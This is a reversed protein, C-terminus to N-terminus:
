AGSIISQMMLMLIPIYYFQELAGWKTYLKATDLLSAADIEQNSIYKWVTTELVSQSTTKNYFNISLIYYDDQTVPYITEVTQNPLHRLNLAKVMQNLQGVAVPAQVLVADGIPKVNNVITNDVNLVPDFPYVTNSIGTYRIGELLPNTTFTRTSVLGARKFCTNLYSVDREKLATWLSYCQMIPDDQVNLKRIKIIEPNDWTNFQSLLFDVLYHDYISSTQGPVLLTKFENSFFKKFYQHALANFVSQMQMLTDYATTVLLPNKGLNLFDAHFFLTEVVKNELDAIKAPDESDLSYNIEYTAQKYISKKITNTVRFVAKKGEGIDAIFMDGDNPIIFPYLSSVGTIEMAKTEDNQASDLPTTVKMEMNAIKKYSQYQSSVTVQLGSLQSDANLVQSYYDVVWSSGEIHTLLYLRNTWRTDVEVGNYAPSTVETANVLAPPEATAIAKVLGDANNPNGTILPM